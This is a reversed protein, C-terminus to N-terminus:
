INNDKENSKYINIGSVVLVVEEGTKLTEHIEDGISFMERAEGLKIRRAIEEWTTVQKQQTFLTAERTEELALKNGCYPCFRKECM